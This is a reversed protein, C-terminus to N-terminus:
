MAWDLDEAALAGCEPLPKEIRLRLDHHGRDDFRIFISLVAAQVELCLVAHGAAHGETALAFTGAALCVQEDPGFGLLGALQRARQRARVVDRKTTLRLILRFPKMIAM